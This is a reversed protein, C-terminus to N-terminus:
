GDLRLSSRPSSATFNQATEQIVVKGHGILACPLLVAANLMPRFVGTGTSRRAGKSHGFQKVQTM